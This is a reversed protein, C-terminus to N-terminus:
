FLPLILLWMWLMLPAYFLSNIFLANVSLGVISAIVLVGAISLEHKKRVVAMKLIFFWLSIYAIFGIIGTTALVFLFSNDVGSDAHSMFLPHANRFNYKIQAYRYANFGVGLIPHDQIIKLANRSTELRAESSATRLLNTNEIYFLPSIVIFFLILIGMLIFILKKKNILILFTISGALFMLLASRSYTLFIAGLTGLLITSLFLSTYKSKKQLSTYLQASVFLFYLVFFAGAFNPDFFVSFLRYMHDDWGLYYLNRLNSYFFYQLYGLLVILLGDWLLFKSMLKKFKDDFTITIFFIGAFSIWRLLYLTAAFFENPALTSANILLSVFGVFSFLLTLLLIKRLASQAVYTRIKSFTTFSHVHRLAKARAERNVMHFIIGCLVTFTVLMDLPKLIVNNGVDIRLLEGFPFLILIFILLFKLIKM